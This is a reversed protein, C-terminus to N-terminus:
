LDSGLHEFVNRLDRSVSQNPEFWWEAIERITWGDAALSLLHREREGLEAVRAALKSKGAASLRRAWM